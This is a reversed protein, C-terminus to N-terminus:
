NEDSLIGAIVLPFLITADGHVKVRPANPKIKAWTVAEETGAGSDSGDFDQGSNIYVAFDAGERFIQANLTYHKSVGGGLIIVGTKDANLAIKVIEEIDGTIDVMFDKKRRKMFYIMDGFAGDTLAPCFVPINNKSAWYLISEENEISRGAIEIIEHCCLPRAKEKQAAYVQELVKNMHKEFYTYRDNTVFINGIKNIGKNFMEKEDAEFSGVVFPKISKIIDEEIGGATTILVDVFKHETLYRIIERVGSSVMNSTYSLFIKAKERKMVKIVEIAKSLNTAQFGTNSYAKIFKKFDLRQNFDFGKIHPFHDLNICNDPIYGNLSQKTM